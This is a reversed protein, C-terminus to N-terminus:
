SFSYTHTHKQRGSPGMLAVIQRPHVQGCVNDLLTRQIFKEKSEPDIMKAAVDIVKSVNHFTVTIRPSLEAMLRAGDESMQGQLTHGNRKEMANDTDLYEDSTPNIENDM